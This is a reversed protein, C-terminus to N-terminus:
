VRSSIASPTRSVIARRSSTTASRRSPGGLCIRQFAAARCAFAAGRVPLSASCASAGRGPQAPAVEEDIRQRRGGEEERDARGPRGQGRRRPRGPTLRPRQRHPREALVQRRERRGRGQGPHHLDSWDKFPGKQREGLIQTSITPGIGKISELEAQSAKNVDVAAFATAAVLAGLAVILQKFM